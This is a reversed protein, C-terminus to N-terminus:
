RMKAILLEVDSSISSCPEVLPM